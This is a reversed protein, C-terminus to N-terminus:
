RGPGFPLVAELEAMGAAAAIKWGNRLLFVHRVIEAQQELGYREFRGARSTNCLRLPLLPPADARLYYKGRPRPRGSM